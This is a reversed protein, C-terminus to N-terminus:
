RGIGGGSVVREIVCYFAEAGHGLRIGCAALLVEDAGHEIAQQALAEVKDGLVVATVGGGLTKVIDRAVGLVEWSAPSSQGQFHDIYVHVKNSM